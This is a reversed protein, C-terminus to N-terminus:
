GDHVYRVQIDDSGDDPADEELVSYQYKPTPLFSSM